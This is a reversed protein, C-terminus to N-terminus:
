AVALFTAWAFETLWRFLMRFVGSFTSPMDNIFTLSYGIALYLIVGVVLWRM